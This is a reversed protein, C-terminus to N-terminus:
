PLPINQVSQNRSLSPCPRYTRQADAGLRGSDLPYTIHGRRVCAFSNISHLQLRKGSLIHEVRVGHVMLADAILSRHCRWPVAEACMIANRKQRSLKLLRHLGAEFESTQMYDAFGRFSANRWSMNPSDRRAHRLGGLKRLHVYGIRASRLKASLIERNFQPNHRSRPISRVDIVRKIGHARLLGLFVEWTRTSHGITLVCPEAIKVKRVIEM